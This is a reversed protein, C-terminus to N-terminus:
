LAGELLKPHSYLPENPAREWSYTRSFVLRDGDRGIVRCFDARGTPVESGDEIEILFMRAGQPLVLQIKLSAVAKDAIAAAVAECMEIVHVVMDNM